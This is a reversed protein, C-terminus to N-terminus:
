RQPITDCASAARSSSCDPLTLQAAPLELIVSTQFDCVGIDGHSLSPRRILSGNLAVNKLLLGYFHFLLSEVDSKGRIIEHDLILSNEGLRLRGFNGRFPNVCLRLNHKIASSVPGKRYILYRNPLRLVATNRSSRRWDRMGLKYSAGGVSSCRTSM